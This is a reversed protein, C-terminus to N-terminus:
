SSGTLSAKILLKECINYTSADFYITNPQVNAMNNCAFKLLTFHWLLNQSVKKRVDSTATGLCTSIDNRALTIVFKWSPQKDTPMPHFLVCALGPIKALMTAATTPSNSCRKDITRYPLAHHRFHSSRCRSFM